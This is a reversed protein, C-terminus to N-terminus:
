PSPVAATVAATVATTVAATVAATVASPTAPHQKIVTAPGACPLWPRPTTTPSPFPPTPRQLRDRRRDRRPPPTCLRRLEAATPAPAAVADRSGRRGVIRGCIAPHRTRAAHTAREAIAARAAPLPAAAPPDVVHLRGGRRLAVPGRPNLERTRARATALVAHSSSPHLQAHPRACCAVWHPSVPPKSRCRCLLQACRGDFVRGDALTVLGHGEAVDNAFEGAYRRGDPWAGVGEGSIKDDRFQGRLVRGDAWTYQGAGSFCDDCWEGSYENGNFYRMIGRGHRVAPRDGDPLLCEGQYTGNGFNITTTRLDMETQSQVHIPEASNPSLSIFIELPRPFTAAGTEGNYFAPLTLSTM